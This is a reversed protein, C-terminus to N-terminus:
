ELSTSFKYTNFFRSFNKELYTSDPVTSVESALFYVNQIRFEFYHYKM